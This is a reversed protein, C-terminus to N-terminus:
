RPLYHLVDMCKIKVTRLFIIHRSFLVFFEADYFDGAVHNQPLKTGTRPGVGEKNPYSHV